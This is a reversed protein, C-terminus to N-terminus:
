SQEEVWDLCDKRWAHAYVVEGSEDRVLWGGGAFGTPWTIGVRLGRANPPFYYGRPPRDYSEVTYTSTM